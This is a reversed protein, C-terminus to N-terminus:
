REPSLFELSWQEIVTMARCVGLCSLEAEYAPNSSVLVAMLSEVEKGLVVLRREWSM